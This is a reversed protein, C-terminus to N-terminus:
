MIGVRTKEPLVNMVYPRALALPLTAQAYLMCCFHVGPEAPMADTCTATNTSQRAAIICHICM